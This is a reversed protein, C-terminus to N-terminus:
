FTYILDFQMRNLYPETAGPSVGSARAANQLATNLTRGRWWTFGAV